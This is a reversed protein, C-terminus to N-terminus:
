APDGLRVMVEGSPMTVSTTGSPDTREVRGDDYRYEMNGNGDQWNWVREECYYYYHDGAVTCQWDGNAFFLTTATSPQNKYIVQAIRKVNGDQYAHLDVPLGHYLRRLKGNPLPHDRFGYQWADSQQEHVWDLRRQMTNDNTNIFQAWRHWEGDTWSQAVPPAVIPTCVLAPAPAPAPAPISTPVLMPAAAPTSVATTIEARRVLEIIRREEPTDPVRSLRTDAYRDWLVTRSGRDIKSVWAADAVVSRDDRIQEPEDDMGPEDGQESRHDLEREVKSVALPIQKPRDHRRRRGRGFIRVPPRAPRYNDVFDRAFGDLFSDPPQDDLEIVNTPQRGSRTTPTQYFTEHEVLRAFQTAQQRQASIDELLQSLGQDIGHGGM